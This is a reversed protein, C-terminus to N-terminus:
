SHQVPNHAIKIASENDCILPVQKVYIGYDKLTQTMCLLQACCSGAAIYEAEVTSLPFWTKNRPPGLCLLDVLFNVLVRLPSEILRTVPM